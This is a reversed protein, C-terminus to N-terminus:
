HSLTLTRTEYAHMPVTRSNSISDVSALYERGNSGTFRLAPLSGAKVPNGPLTLAIASKGEGQVLIIGSDSEQVTYQGAPFLKGAVVFAFPINVHISDAAPAASMITTGLAMAGLLGVFKCVKKM